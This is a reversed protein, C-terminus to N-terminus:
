RLMSTLFAALIQRYLLLFYDGAALVGMKTYEAHQPDAKKFGTIIGVTEQQFDTPLEM